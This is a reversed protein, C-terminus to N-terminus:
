TTNGNTAWVALGSPAPSVTWPMLKVIKSIAGPSGYMVVYRWVGTSTSPWNTPMVGADFQQQVTVGLPAIKNLYLAYSALTEGAQPPVEILYTEGVQLTPPSVSTFPGPVTLTNVPSPTGHNPSPTPTTTNTTTTPGTAKVPAPTAASSSKTLLVAAGVVAAGAATLGVIWATRSKAARKTMSAM